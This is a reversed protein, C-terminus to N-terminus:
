LLNGNRRGHHQSHSPLAAPVVEAGDGLKRGLGGLAKGGKASCKPLPEDKELRWESNTKFLKAKDDHSLASDAHLWAAKNDDKGWAEQL